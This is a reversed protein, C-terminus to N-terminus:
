KVLVALTSQVFSLLASYVIAWLLGNVVFGGPVFVGVIMPVILLCLGNLIISFLGLTIINIPLTVLKLVPAIVGNVFGIAISVFIAVPYSKVIVPTYSPFLVNLVTASFYVALGNLLISLIFKM